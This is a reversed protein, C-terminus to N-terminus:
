GAPGCRGTWCSRSGGIRAGRGGCWPGRCRRRMGGRRGGGGCRRRERAALVRGLVVESSEGPEGSLALTVPDLAPLDVRIDVRDMLPGSLRGLYRRRVGAACTCEVDKAAACPCPNAALILQFRAPYRVAGSARALLVMGSEMPQRLADLVTPRFEPAEIRLVFHVACMLRLGSLSRGHGFGGDWGASM